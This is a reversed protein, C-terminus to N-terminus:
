VPRVIRGGDRAQDVVHARVVHQQEGGVKGVPLEIAILDHRRSNRLSQVALDAAVIRQRRVAAEGRRRGLTPMAFCTMAASRSNGAPLRRSTSMLPRWIATNLM